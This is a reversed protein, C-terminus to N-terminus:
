DNYEELKIKLDSKLDNSDLLYEEMWNNKISWTQIFNLVIIMFRIKLKTM